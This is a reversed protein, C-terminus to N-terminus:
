EQPRRPTTISFRAHSDKVIRGVLLQQKYRASGSTVHSSQYGLRKRGKQGEGQRPLPGGSQKLLCTSQACVCVVFSPLWRREKGEDRSCIADPSPLQFVTGVSRECQEMVVTLFLLFHYENLYEVLPTHQDVSELRMRSTNHSSPRLTVTGVVKEARASCYSHQKSAEAILVM